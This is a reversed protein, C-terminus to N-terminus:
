FPLDDDTVSESITSFTQPAAKKVAPVKFDNDKIRQASIPRSIKVFTKVEGDDAIFEEEGFVAGVLKGKLSQLDIEGNKIPSYGTNSAEISTLLGKLFPVGKGETLQRYTAANPWKKDQATNADFKNRYFDKFEGEAIDMLLVIMNNGNQSTAEKAQAIKCIYGGAPLTTGEGPIKAEAENYGEPLKM